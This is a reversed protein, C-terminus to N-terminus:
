EDVGHHDTEFLIELKVTGRMQEIIEEENTIFNKYGLKIQFNNLPLKDRNKLRRCVLNFAEYVYELYINSDTDFYVADTNIYSIVKNIDPQTFLVEQAFSGTHPTHATNLLSVEIQRPLEVQGPLIKIHQENNRFISETKNVGVFYKKEKKGSKWVISHSLSNGNYSHKTRENNQSQHLGISDFFQFMTATVQDDVSPIIHFSNDSFINLEAGMDLSDDTIQVIKNNRIRSTGPNATYEGRIIPVCLVDPSPVIIETQYVCDAFAIGPTATDGHMLRFICKGSNAEYNTARRIQIFFEDQDNAFKFLNSTPYLTQSVSAVGANSVEQLGDIVQYSRTTGDYQFKFGVVIDDDVVVTPSTTNIQSEENTFMVGCIVSIPNDDLDPRFNWYGGNPDIAYYDGNVIKAIAMSTGTTGDLRITSLTAGGGKSCDVLSWHDGMDIPTIATILEPAYNASIGHNKIELPTPEVLYDTGNVSLTDGAVVDVYKTELIENAPSFDFFDFKTELAKALIDSFGPITKNQLGDNLLLLNNTYLQYSGDYFQAETRAEVDNLTNWATYFESWTIGNSVGSVYVTLMVKARDLADLNPITIFKQTWVPISFSSKNLCVKANKPIILPDTLYNNFQAKNGTLQISEM